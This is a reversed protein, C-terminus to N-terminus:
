FGVGKLIAEAQTLLRLATDPDGLRLHIRAHRQLQKAQSIEDLTVDLDFLDLITKYAAAIIAVDVEASVGSPADVTLTNPLADLGRLGARLDALVDDPIAPLTM